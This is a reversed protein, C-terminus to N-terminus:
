EEYIQRKGDDEEGQFVEDYFGRKRDEEIIFLTSCFM